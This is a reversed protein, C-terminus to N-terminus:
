KEWKGEYWDRWDGDKEKLILKTKYLRVLYDRSADYLEIFDQNRHVEVFYFYADKEGVKLTEKWFAAKTNTLKGKDHTWTIRLPEDASAAAAVGLLSGIAVVFPVLIGPASM